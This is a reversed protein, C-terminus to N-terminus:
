CPFGIDIIALLKRSPLLPSDFHKLAKECWLTTCPRILHGEYGAARHLGCSLYSIFSLRIKGLVTQLSTPQGAPRLHPGSHSRTSNKKGVEPLNQAGTTLGPSRSRFPASSQSPQTKGSNCYLDSTWTSHLPVHLFISRARLNLSSPSWERCFWEGLQLPLSAGEVSCSGALMSNTKLFWQIRDSCIM